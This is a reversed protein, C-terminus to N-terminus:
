STSLSGTEAITTEQANVLRIRQRIKSNRYTTNSVDIASQAFAQAQADGGLSNKVPTTYLLLVDIRDGSDIAAEPAASAKSELPPDGKIDGACEPFM